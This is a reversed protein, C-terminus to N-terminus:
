LVSVLHQARFLRRGQPGWGLGGPLAELQSSTSPHSFPKALTAHQALCALALAQCPVM